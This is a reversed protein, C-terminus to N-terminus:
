RHIIITAGDFRVHFGISHITQKLVLNWASGGTWNVLAASDVNEGYVVHLNPPVIQKLAFSLPIRRGFGRAIPVPYTPVPSIVPMAQPRIQRQPAVASESPMSPSLPTGGGNLVEFDAQALPAYTVVSLFFLIRLLITRM